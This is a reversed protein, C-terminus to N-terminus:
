PLQISQVSVGIRGNTPNLVVFEREGSDVNVFVVKAESGCAALADRLTQLDPTLVGNVSLIVDGLKMGAKQAPGNDLGIIQAGFVLLPASLNETNVTPAPETPIASVPVYVTEVPSPVAVPVEIVTPSQVQSVLLAMERMIEADHRVAETIAAIQAATLRANAVLALLETCERRTLVRGLCAQRLCDRAGSSFNVNISM